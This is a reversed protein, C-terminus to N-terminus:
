KREPIGLIAKPFDYNPIVPVATRFVSLPISAFAGLAERETLRIKLSYTDTSQHTKGEFADVLALFSQKDDVHHHGFVIYPKIIDFTPHNDLADAVERLAAAIDSAKPM